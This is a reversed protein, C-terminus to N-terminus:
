DRGPNSGTDGYENGVAIVVVGRAGGSRTIFSGAEFMNESSAFINKSAVSPSM